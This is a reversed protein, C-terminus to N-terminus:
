NNKKQFNILDEESFANSLSLMPVKHVSKKFVKSPKHGVVKSPSEESYLFDFKKELELINNKLEDYKEDTVDPNSDEYYSQNYKKLISVKKIYDSYIKKKNM